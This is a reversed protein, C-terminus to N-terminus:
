WSGVLNRGMLLGCGIQFIWHYDASCMSETSHNRTTRSLERRLGAVGSETARLANKLAAINCDLERFTANVFDAIGRDKESDPQLQTFGRELDAQHEM